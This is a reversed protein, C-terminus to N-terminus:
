TFLKNYIREQRRLGEQYIEHHAMNPEFVTEFPLSFDEITQIKGRAELALLAAGRMSAEPLERLGVRRGLVDALIQV